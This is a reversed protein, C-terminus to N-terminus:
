KKFLKMAQIAGPHGVDAAKKMWKQAEAQNKEVGNGSLYLGALQYQAEPHGVESARRYWYAAKAPDKPQGEGTRAMGALSYMAGGHGHEAAKEWWKIASVFDRRAPDRGDGGEHVGRYYVLGLNYEAEPHGAASAKEWWSRAKVYDPQGLNGRAEMLGLAFAARGDGNDALPRMVAAAESYKKLQYLQDARAMADDNKDAASQKGGKPKAQATKQQAARAPDTATLASFALALALSIVFFNLIRRSSKM